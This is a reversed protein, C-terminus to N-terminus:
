LEKLLVTRESEEDKETILFALHGEPLYLEETEVKLLHKKKFGKLLVTRESEEDKETILFALHGEPLYLEETEVKLLHKKKFCVFKFDEIKAQKVM